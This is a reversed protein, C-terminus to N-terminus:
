IQFGPRTPFPTSGLTFAAMEIHHFTTLSESPEAHCLALAHCHVDVRTAGYLIIDM